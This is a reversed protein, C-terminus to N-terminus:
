FPLFHPSDVNDVYIENSYLEKERPKLAQYTKSDVISDSEGM